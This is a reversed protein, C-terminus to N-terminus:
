KLLSYFYICIFFFVTVTVEGAKVADCLWM